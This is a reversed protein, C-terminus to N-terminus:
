YLLKSNLFLTPLQNPARSFTALNFPGKFVSAHYKCCKPQLFPTKLIDFLMLRKHLNLHVVDEM